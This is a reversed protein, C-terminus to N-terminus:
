LRAAARVKRKDEKRAQRLAATAGTSQTDILLMFPDLPNGLAETYDRIKQEVNQPPGHRIRRREFVSGNDSARRNLISYGAPQVHNTSLGQVEFPYLLPKRFRGDRNLEPRPCVGVFWTKAYM